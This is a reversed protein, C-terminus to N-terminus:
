RWRGTWRAVCAGAGENEVPLLRWRTSMLGRRALSNRSPLTLSNRSPQCFRKVDELTLRIPGRDGLVHLNGNGWVLPNVYVEYVGDLGKEALAYAFEGSGHMFLDGDVEDKLWPVSVELDGDLLTANWGLEHRHTHQEPAAEGVGSYTPRVTVISDNTGVSAGM